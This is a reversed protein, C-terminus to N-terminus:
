VSRINHTLGWTSVIGTTCNGRSCYKVEQYNQNKELVKVLMVTKLLCRWVVVKLSILNNLKDIFSARM